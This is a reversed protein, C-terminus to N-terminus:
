SQILTRLSVLSPSLRTQPFTDKQQLCILRWLSQRIKLESTFRLNLLIYVLFMIIMLISHRVCLTPIFQKSRQQFQLRPLQNEVLKETTLLLMRRDRRFLLKRSILLSERLPLCRKQLQKWSKHIQLMQQLLHSVYKRRDLTLPDQLVVPKISFRKWAAMSSAERFLHEAKQFWSSVVFRVLTMLSSQCELDKPIQTLLMSSDQCDM